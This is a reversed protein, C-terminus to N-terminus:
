TADEAFIQGGTQNQRARSDLLDRHEFRSNDISDPFQRSLPGLTFLDDRANSVIAGNQPRPRVFIQNECCVEHQFATVERVIRMRCRIDAM